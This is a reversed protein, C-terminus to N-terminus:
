WIECGYITIRKIITNCVCKNKGKTVNKGWFVSKLTSIACHSLKIRENIESDHTGEWHENRFIQVRHMTKNNTLQPSLLGELPLHGWDLVGTGGIQLNLWQALERTGPYFTCISFSLIIDRTGIMFNKIVFCPPEESVGYTSWTVYPDIWVYWHRKLQTDTGDTWHWHEINVYKLPSDPGCWPSAM